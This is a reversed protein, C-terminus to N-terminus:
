IQVSINYKNELILTGNVPDLNAFKLYFLVDCIYFIDGVLLYKNLLSLILQAVMLIVMIILCHMDVM